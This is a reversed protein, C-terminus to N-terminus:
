QMYAICKDLGEKDYNLTKNKLQEDAYATLKNLDENRGELCPNYERLDLGHFEIYEYFDDLIGFSYTPRHQVRNLMEFARKEKETLKEIRMISVLTDVRDSYCNEVESFSAYFHDLEEKDVPSIDDDEPYIDYPDFFNNGLGKFDEDWLSIFVM